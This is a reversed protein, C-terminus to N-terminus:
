LEIKRLTQQTGDSPACGYFKQYNRYFTSYTAFGYHRCIETPNAANVLAQQVLQLKQLMIYQKPTINMYKVFCHHLHSPTIFLADSVQQVTLAERIHYRIFDVARLIVPNTHATATQSPTQTELYINVWLEGILNTLVTELLQGQLNSIYFGIKEFIELMISNEAINLVHVEAPLKEMIEKSLLNETVVFGYREYHVTGKARLTHVAGPRSIILCNPKIDFTSGDVTYTLEGNKVFLFEWGDHTHTSIETDFDLTSTYGYHFESAKYAITSLTQLIVM